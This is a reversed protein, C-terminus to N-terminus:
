LCTEPLIMVEADGLGLRDARLRVQQPSEEGAVYLVGHGRRALASCAQLTLTSKGIGPDGGVLTVSGQVLGGGLVRDLEDLGTSRRISDQSPVASLPRPKPGGTTPRVAGSRGKPERVAEEVLSEWTSCAPCQGHWRPTTHGCQQCM